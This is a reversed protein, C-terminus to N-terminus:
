VPAAEGCSWCSGFAGGLREQCRSCFWDPRPRRREAEWSTIVALARDEDRPDHVRVGIVDGPPLEGIAGSLYHGTVEASLGNAALEDVVLQAEVVNAARYVRKM